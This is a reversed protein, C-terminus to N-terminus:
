LWCGPDKKFPNKYIAYSLCRLGGGCIRAYVCAKCKPDLNDPNRLRKLVSSDFYVETISKKTINGVIIPMRRCPLLNGASDITILTYGAKCKYPKQYDILFQLARDMAIKTKSFFGKELRDKVSKMSSFFLKTQKPNLSFKKLESGSGYPILRDAWVKAVGLKKGVLAVEQFDECNFRHATFSILVPIKAKKLLRIAQISKDFVGEGRIQDNKKKDGELSIQVFTPKFSALKGINSSDILTGNTLIGFSFYKRHKYFEELLNFFDKRLFPEGGTINIHAKLNKNKTKLRLYEIFKKYNDLIYLLQSFTLEKQKQKEQYCHKCNLNCRETIHWQLLM